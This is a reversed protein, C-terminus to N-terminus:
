QARIPDPRITPVAERPKAHMAIIGIGVLLGALSSALVVWWTRPSVITVLFTLAALGLGGVGSLPSASLNIARFRLCMRRSREIADVPQLEVLRLPRIEVPRDFSLTAAVIATLIQWWFWGSSPRREFDEILDGLLPDSDPVFRELLTIALRPAQRGTM